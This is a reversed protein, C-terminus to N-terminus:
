REIYVVGREGKYITDDGSLSIATSEIIYRGPLVARAEYSFTVSTPMVREFGGVARTEFVPGIYFNNMGNEGTIHWFPMRVWRNRITEGNYSELRASAFRLGSPVMQRIHYTGVEATRDFTVTTTVTFRGGVRINNGSVVSSVTVGQPWGIEDDLGGTYLATYGVSGSEVTFDAQRLAFEGMQLRTRFSDEFTHKIRNGSLNYSFSATSGEEPMHTRLFVAM